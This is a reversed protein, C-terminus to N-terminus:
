ARNVNELQLFNCIVMGGYLINLCDFQTPVLMSFQTSEWPASDKKLFYDASPCYTDRRPRGYDETTSWRTLDEGLKTSSAPENTHKRTQAVPGYGLGILM